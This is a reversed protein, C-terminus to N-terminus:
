WIGPVLRFQVRTCYEAYGPLDRRLLREEHILRFMLTPFILAFIPAAVYSELALPTGLATVIMGSYMPHRIVSYPGSDIVRQESEVQITSAAFSNTKMVLFVFWYGAVAMAQGAIVLALPFPGVWRQSWGLRYDLGSVIFGCYLILSFLRLAWKQEPQTEKSQLRRELLRPDNEQFYLYFVTWFGVMLLLFAVAPWFRFTGAPLFLLAGLFLITILLRGVARAQLTKM